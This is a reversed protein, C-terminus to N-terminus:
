RMEFIAIAAPQTRNYPAAAWAELQSFAATLGSTQASAAYVRFLGQGTAGTTAAVLFQGNPDLDLQM